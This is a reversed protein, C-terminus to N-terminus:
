IQWVMRTIGLRWDFRSFCTKVMDQMPVPGQGDRQYAFKHM